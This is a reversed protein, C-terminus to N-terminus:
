NGVKSGKWKYNWGYLGKGEENLARSWYGRRLSARSLVKVGWLGM